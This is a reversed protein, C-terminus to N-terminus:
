PIVDEDPREAKYHERAEEATSEGFHSALDQEHLRQTETGLSRPDLKTLEYERRHCDRTVDYTQGQYDTWEVEEADFNWLRATVMWYDDGMGHFVDGEDYRYEDLQQPTREDSQDNESVQVM